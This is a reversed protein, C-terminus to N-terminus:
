VILDIHNEKEDKEKVGNLQNFNFILKKGKNEKGKKKGKSRLSAPSFSIKREKESRRIVKKVKQVGSLQSFDDRIRGIESVM